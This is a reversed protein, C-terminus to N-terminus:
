ISILNKELGSAILTEWAQRDNRIYGIDFGASLWSKMTPSRKNLRGCLPHGFKDTSSGYMALYGAWEKKVAVYSIQRVRFFVELKFADASNYFVHTWDMERIPQFLSENLMILSVDSTDPIAAKFIRFHSKKSFAHRSYGEGSLSMLVSISEDQGQLKYHLQETQTAPGHVSLAVLTQAHDLALGYCVTRSHQSVSGCRDPIYCTFEM